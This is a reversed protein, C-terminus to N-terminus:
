RLPAPRSSPSSNTYRCVTETVHTSKHGVTDSIDQIPVGNKSMISVATHRSEHAHWHGLGAWGPGARKTIRSFRLNPADGTYPTGDELCFVLNNDQWASGAAARERDQLAKHKILAKVARKPLELTRKSAPTKTDGGKRASRWVKIVANDLDALDWTLGRLEGPRLGLTIALVFLAELRLAKDDHEDLQSRCSICTV